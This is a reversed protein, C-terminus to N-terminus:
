LSVYQAHYLADINAGQADVNNQHCGTLLTYWVLWPYKRGYGRSKQSPASQRQQLKSQCMCVKFLVKRATWTRTCDAYEAFTMQLMQTQPERIHYYSGFINKDTDTEIFLNHKQDSCFVTWAPDQTM